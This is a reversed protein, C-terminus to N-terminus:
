QIIMKKDISVIHICTQADDNHEIVMNKLDAQVDFLRSIDELSQHSLFSFSTTMLIITWRWCYFKFLQRNCLFMVSEFQIAKWPTSVSQFRSSLTLILRTLQIHSSTRNISHSWQCLCELYRKKTEKISHGVSTIMISRCPPPHHQVHVNLCEDLREIDENRKRRILSLNM